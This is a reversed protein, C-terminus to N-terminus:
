ACVSKSEERGRGRVGWGRGGEGMWGGGWGMGLGGRMGRGVAVSEAYGAHAIQQTLLDVQRHVKVNKNRGAVLSM